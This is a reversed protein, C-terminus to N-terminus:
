EEGLRYLVLYNDKISDLVSPLKKLFEESPKRGIKEFSKLVIKTTLLPHPMLKEIRTIYEVRIKNRFINSIRGDIKIRDNIKLQDLTEQFKGLEISCEVEEGTKLRLWLKSKTKLNKFGIFNGIISQFELKDAYRPLQDQLKEVQDQFFIESSIESYIQKEKKLWKSIREYFVEDIIFEYDRDFFPYIHLIIKINKEQEIRFKKLNKFLRIRERKNPFDHKLFRIGEDYSTHSLINRLNLFLSNLEKNEESTEKLLNQKLKFCFHSEEEKINSLYFQIRKNFETRYIINKYISIYYILETLHDIYEASIRFNAEPNLKELDEEIKLCIEFEM